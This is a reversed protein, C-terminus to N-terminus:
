KKNKQLKKFNSLLLGQGRYIIFLKGAYSDVQKQHLQQIQQHLDRIFFGMHIITDGELTRLTHNLMQCTFWQRTYWLISLEPRYKHEFEDIIKIKPREM